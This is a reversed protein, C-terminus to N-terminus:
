SPRALEVADEMGASAPAADAVGRYVACMRAGARQMHRRGDAAALGSGVVPLIRTWRGVVAWATRRLMAKALSGAVTRPTVAPSLVAPLDSVRLDAPRRDPLEAEWAAALARWLVMRGRDTQPDFGYVVALRQGLRVTSVAQALIEPPVSAAGGLGALGGLATAQFRAQDVVWTATSDLEWLAPPHPQEPDCFPRDAIRLQARTRATPVAIARTAAEALRADAHDFLDSLLPPLRPAMPSEYGVM